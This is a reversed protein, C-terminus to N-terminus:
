HEPPQEASHVPWISHLVGDAPMEQVPVQSPEHSPLRVAPQSPVQRPSHMPLQESTLASPWHSPSHEPM